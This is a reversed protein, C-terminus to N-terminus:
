SAQQLGRREQQHSEEDLEQGHIVEQRAPLSDCAQIAQSSAFSCIPDSDDVYSAEVEVSFGTHEGFLSALFSPNSAIGGTPCFNGSAQTQNPIGSDYYLFGPDSSRETACYWYASVAATPDSIQLQERAL